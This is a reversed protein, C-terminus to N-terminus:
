ARSINPARAQSPSGIVIGTWRRSFPASSSKANKMIESGFVVGSERGPRTSKAAGDGEARQYTCYLSNRM